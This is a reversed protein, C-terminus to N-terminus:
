NKSAERIGPRDHGWSAAWKGVGTLQLNINMRIAMHDDRRDQGV